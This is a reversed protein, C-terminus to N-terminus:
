PGVFVRWLGGKEISQHFRCFQGSMLLKHRDKQFPHPLVPSFMCAFILVNSLIAM